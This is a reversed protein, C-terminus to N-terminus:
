SMKALRRADKRAERKAIAEPSNFAARRSESLRARRDLDVAVRWVGIKHRPEGPLTRITFEYSPNQKIFARARSWVRNIITKIMGDLEDQPLDSPLVVVFSEGLDLDGFPYQPVLDSTGWRRSMVPIPIPEDSKRVVPTIQPRLPPPPPPLPPPPVHHITM